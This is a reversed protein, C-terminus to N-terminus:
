GGDGSRGAARAEIVVFAQAFGSEDTLTLHLFPETGTPL